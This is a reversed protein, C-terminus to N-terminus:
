YAPTWNPDDFEYIIEGDDITWKQSSILKENVLFDVSDDFIYGEDLTITLRIINYDTYLVISYGDEDTSAEYTTSDVLISIESVIRGDVSARIKRGFSTENEKALNYLSFSKTEVKFDTEENDYMIYAKLVFAESYNSEAISSFTFTYEVDDNLDITKKDVATEFDFDETGYILGVSVIDEKYYTSLDLNITVDFGEELDNLKVEEFSLRWTSVTTEKQCAILSMPLLFILLIIKIIKM